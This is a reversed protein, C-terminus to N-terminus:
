GPSPQTLVDRGLLDELVPTETPAAMGEAEDRSKM